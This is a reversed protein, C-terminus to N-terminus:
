KEPQKEEDDDKNKIYIKEYSVRFMIELEDIVVAADRGQMIHQTMLTSTENLMKARDVMPYTVALRKIAKVVSEKEPRPIDVPQLVVPTAPESAGMAAASAPRDALFEAFDILTAIQTENLRGLIELLRKEPKKTANNKIFM